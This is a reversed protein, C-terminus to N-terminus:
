KFIIFSALNPSYKCDLCSYFWVRHEDEIGRDALFEDLRHATREQDQEHEDVGRDIEEGYDVGEGPLPSGGSRVLRKEALAVAQELQAAVEHGRRDDGDHDRDQRQSEGDVDQVAEPQGPLIDACAAAPLAIVHGALGRRIGPRGLVHEHQADHDQAQDGEVQGMEPGLHLQRLHEAYAVELIIGIQQQLNGEAAPPDNDDVQDPERGEPHVHYVTEPAHELGHAPVALGPELAHLDDAQDENGQDAQHEDDGRDVGEDLRIEDGLDRGAGSLRPHLFTNTKESYIVVKATGIKHLSRM